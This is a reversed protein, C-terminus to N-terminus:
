AFLDDLTESWSFFGNLDESNSMVKLIELVAYCDALSDHFEFDDRGCIIRVAEKLSPWKIGFYPHPIACFETFSRMTCFSRPFEFGHAQELFRSDFPTNHCVALDTRDCFYPVEVDNSLHLPYNNGTMFRRQELVSETLGNVSIAETNYYLLSRPSTSFTSLEILGMYSPQMDIM